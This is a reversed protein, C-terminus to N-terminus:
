WSMNHLQTLFYKHVISIEYKSVNLFKRQIILYQLYAKHQYFDLIKSTPVYGEAGFIYLFNINGSKLIHFMHCFIICKIYMHLFNVGILTYHYSNLIRMNWYPQIIYLTDTYGNLAYLYLIPISYLTKIYNYVLQPLKSYFM